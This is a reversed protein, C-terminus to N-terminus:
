RRDRIQRMHETQVAEPMGNLPCYMIRELTGRGLAHTLWRPMMGSREFDISRSAIKEILGQAKITLRGAEILAVTLLFIRYGRVMSSAPITFIPADEPGVVVFCAAAGNTRHKRNVFLRVLVRRGVTVGAVTLSPKSVPVEVRMQIVVSLYGLAKM